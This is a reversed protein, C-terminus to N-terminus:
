QQYATLKMHAREMREELIDLNTRLQEKYAELSVLQSHLTPLIAEIPM